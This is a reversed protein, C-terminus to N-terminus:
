LLGLTLRIMTQIIIFIVAEVCVNFIPMEQAFWRNRIVMFFDSKKLVKLEKNKLLKV